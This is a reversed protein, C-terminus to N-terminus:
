LPRSRGLLLIQNITPSNISTSNITVIVIRFYSYYNYNSYSNGFNTSYVNTTPTYASTFDITYWTSGNNSGVLYWRKPFQVFYNFRNLMYYGSISLAYPLQIQLWEGSITITSSTSNIITTNVTGTYAGTADYKSAAANWFTGTDYDFAKFAPYSSSFQSSASAIYTGNLHSPTYGSIVTTNATLVPISDYEYSIINNIIPINETYYGIGYLQLESLRYDNGSTMSYGIFRFYNYYKQALNQYTWSWGNGNTYTNLNVTFSLVANTGMDVYDIYDWTIGDTSGALIYSAISITAYSPNNVITYSTLKLMYPLQIQSYDRNIVTSDSFTTNDTNTNNYIGNTYHGGASAHWTANSSDFAYMGRNTSGGSSSQVINYVGNRIPTSDNAITYDYKTNAVTLLPIAGISRLDVFSIGNTGLDYLSLVETASLIRNYLRFDDVSGNFSPDATWNSKGLYSNTYTTTTPYLGTGTYYLSGDIYVNHISNVSTDYTLSICVHHWLNNNMAYNISYNTSVGAKRVAYTFVNNNCIDQINPSIFFAYTPSAAGNGFDMIRGNEGSSNSKVWFAVSLGNTTPWSGASLVSNNSKVNGSATNNFASNDVVYDISNVLGTASLSADFIPYGSAYNAVNLSSVDMSNFRYYLLLGSNDIINYNSAKIDTDIFTTNNGICYNSTQNTTFSYTPSYLTSIDYQSQIGMEDTITNLFNTTSIKNIIKRVTANSSDCIFMNDGNDMMINSINKFLANYCTGGDGTYGTTGITTGGIGAYIVIESSTLTQNASYKNLITNPIM